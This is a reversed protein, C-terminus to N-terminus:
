QRYKSQQSELVQWVLPRDKYSQCSQATQFHAGPQLEWTKWCIKSKTLRRQRHAQTIHLGASLYASCSLKRLMLEEPNVEKVDSPSRIEFGLCSAPVQNTSVPIYKGNSIKWNIELVSIGRGIADLLGYITDNLDLTDEPHGHEADHMMEEIFAAKQAADDSIEETRFTAPMVERPMSIVNKKLKNLNTRLRDWTDEMTNFLDDQLELNGRSGEDLIYGVVDPDFDVPFPTLFHDKYSPKIVKRLVKKNM